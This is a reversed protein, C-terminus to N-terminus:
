RHLPGPAVGQPNNLGTQDGAIVAIATVDGTSGIPYKTISGCGSRGPCATTAPGGGGNAVYILNNALAIGIPSSLQTDPGQVSDMPAVNGNSGAPFVLLSGCESLDPCVHPEYTAFIVDTSDLVVGQPAILGAPTEIMAIPAADGTSGASYETITQGAGAASGGNAVYLNGRSDFALSLPGALGTNPGSLKAIPAINGNSGHAFILISDPISSSGTENGVYINGDRDVAIGAPYVLQTQDGSVM